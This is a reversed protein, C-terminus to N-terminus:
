GALVRLVSPCGAEVAQLRQGLGRLAALARYGLPPPLPVPVLRKLRLLRAPHLLLGPKPLFYRFDMFPRQGGCRQHGPDEPDGGIRMRGYLARAGRVVRFMVWAAAALDRGLFGPGRRSGLGRGM